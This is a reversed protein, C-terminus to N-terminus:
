SVLRTSCTSLLSSILFALGYRGVVNADVCM